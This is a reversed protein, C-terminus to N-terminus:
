EIKKVIDEIKIKEETGKNMDKLTVTKEKLEKEGLIIVYPIKMKNCYSLNKSISKEMLDLDTNIGQKRLKSALKAAEKETKIPIIFAKVVTKKEEILKKEKLADYIRTLGITTGTAPIKEKSGIFAGILNDYRGGGCLSLKNPRDKLFVEFVPGTYYELGRALCPTFAVDRVNFAKAYELLERMEKVGEKGEQDKMEKEINKLLERNNKKTDVLELIKQIDEKKLGRKEADELVGKKGQKDLKDISSIADTLKNKPIGASKLMGNLLKRNNVKIIVELKLEDFVDQYVALIEADALMSKSGVTDVDCQWFERNRTGFEERWARDMQYRKFPKPLQPNMAILRCMPVTQDYKLGLKRGARDKITFIQKTIEQGGAYKSTLVEMTELAPTELPNFGYKEFIRRLIDFIKQRIIQEEPLYDKTGKPTQLKM